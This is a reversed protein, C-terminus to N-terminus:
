EDEPLDPVPPRRRSPKPREPLPIPNVFLRETPTQAAEDDPLRELEHQLRAQEPLQGAPKPPPPPVSPADPLPPPVIDDLIPRDFPSLSIHRVPANLMQRLIIVGNERMQEYVPRPLDGGELEDLVVDMLGRLELDSVKGQRQRVALYPTIYAAIIVTVPVAEGQLVIVPPLHDDAYFANVQSFSPFLGQALLNYIQGYGRAWDEIYVDKLGAVEAPLEGVLVALNYSALQRALRQIRAAPEGSKEWGPPVLHAAHEQALKHLIRELRAIM